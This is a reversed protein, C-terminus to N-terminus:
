LLPALEVLLLRGDFRLGSTDAPQVLGDVMGGFVYLYRGSYDPCARHFSRCNPKYGEARLRKWMNLLLGRSDLMSQQVSTFPIAKTDLVWFDDKRRRASDEGGYILVRGGLILTASHGVRPLSFGAPINQLEYPIQVWKFFGEYVDLFWVDNLVEYGVGRGGFLVTRNGGIRTLSHGSRAPPSPHTVLQQWSGFCFNESLELVWTDGLRLGYLGIGAHIVMKRNDICCAAHAGRAPPAISGVDLLRWSLTIGLNEHCAIQGIWTDNHRNGRDNIGGFLVLCDGIVVCTHGFRGSPIGSNVKQWKLMGQFDNGVYAVWTDDLHRGGECGGGFLVLCNSVFNLSHSARPNPLVLDGDADSINRCSVSELQTVQRYLRMWPVTMMMMQYQSCSYKFADVQKHGWDRRCISEWLTDSSALSRFRKCTMAFSLISDVPLRLLISFLHDQALNAIPSTSGNNINSTSSSSEAM